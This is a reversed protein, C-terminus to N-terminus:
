LILRGAEWWRISARDFAFASQAGRVNEYNMGFCKQHTKEKEQLKKTTIFILRDDFSFPATGTKLTKAIM